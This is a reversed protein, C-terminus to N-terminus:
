PKTFSLVNARHGNLELFSLLADRGITTTRTNILPHIHLEPAEMLKQDIYFQVKGTVDNLVSLPSVAGPIVGLYHMLRQPSAFSFRNTGVMAATAKLDVQRDEHLTLLWMQGKKNRVFLNKTHGYECPARLAKADNVTWMAAHDVTSHPIGSKELLGLLHDSSMPPSGDILKLEIANEIMTQSENNAMRDILNKHDLILKRQSSVQSENIILRKTELSM